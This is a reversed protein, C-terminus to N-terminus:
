YCLYKDEKVHKAMLVNSLGALEDQLKEATIQDECEGDSHPVPERIALDEQGDIWWRAYAAIMNNPTVMKMWIQSEEMKM